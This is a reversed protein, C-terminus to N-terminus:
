CTLSPLLEHPHDHEPVLGPSMARQLRQQRGLVLDDEHHGVRRAVVRVLLDPAVRDRIQAASFPTGTRPACGGPRPRPAVRELVGVRVDDDGVVPPGPDRRVDEVSGRCPVSFTCSESSGAYAPKEGNIQASSLPSGSTPTVACRISSVSSAPSMTSCRATGTPGVSVAVSRNWRVTSRIPGIMTSASAAIADPRVPSRRAPGPSPSSRGCATWRPCGSRSRSAPPPGPAAPARATRGTGSRRRSGRTWRSRITAADTDSSPVAARGAPDEDALAVAHHDDGARVGAEAAVVPQQDAADASSSPVSSGAVSYKRLM